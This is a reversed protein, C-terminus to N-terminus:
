GYRIDAMIFDCSGFCVCGVVFVLRKTFVHIKRM